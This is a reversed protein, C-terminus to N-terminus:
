CEMDGLALIIIVGKERRDLTKAFSKALKVTEVCDAVKV